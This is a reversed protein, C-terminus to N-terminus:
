REDEKGDKRTATKKIFTEYPVNRGIYYNWEEITMNRHLRQYLRDVMIPISILVETLNGKQDGTWIYDTQTDLTFYTIWNASSFLTMPEVKETNLLWLNVMGDYSSSYICQGYLKLRSIRSRHGTLKRISGQYDKVYITGDSMGFVEQQNGKSTAYATVKGNVPVQRTTIENLGKVEHMYGNVDFIIPHNGIRIVSSVKSKLVHTDLQRYSHQDIFAISQEGVIVFTNEDLKVLSAPHEINEIAKIIANGNKPIAVFHGSRSIAYISGDKEMYVARFDYKSNKFIVTSKLQGGQKKHYIIDGYNSVSALEDNKTQAFDIGMVAGNLVAKTQVGRSGRNLSQLVAPDYLDGKYRSTFLYAAYALLDAIETNGSQSQTLSLSGLSRGLARYRLTDATCRAQEARGRQQEALKKQDEALHRADQAQQESLLAKQESQRAQQESVEAKLREGNALETQRQAEIRKEDSIDKQQYAIEEMQRSISQVVASRKEQRLLEEVQAELQKTRRHEAYWGTMGGITLLLLVAGTVNTLTIKRNM